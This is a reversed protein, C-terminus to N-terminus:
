PRPHQPVACSFHPVCLATWTWLGSCHLGPDVLVIFLFSIMFDYYILTIVVDGFLFALFAAIPSVPHSTLTLPELQLTQLPIM